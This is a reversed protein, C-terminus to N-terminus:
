YQISSYKKMCKGMKSSVHLLKGGKITVEKM